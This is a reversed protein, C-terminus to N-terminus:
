WITIMVKIGNNYYFNWERNNEEDYTVEINSMKSFDLTIQGDTDAHSLYIEDGDNYEEQVGYMTDVQYNTISLGDAYVWANVCVWKNDKDASEIASNVEETFKKRIARANQVYADQMFVEFLPDNYNKKDRCIASNETLTVELVAESIYDKNYGQLMRSVEARVEELDIEPFETENIITYNTAKEM